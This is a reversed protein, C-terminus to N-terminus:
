LCGPTTKTSHFLVSHHSSETLHREWLSSWAAWASSCAAHLCACAATIISPGNRLLITKPKECSNKSTTPTPESLKQWLTLSIVLMQPAVKALWAQFVQKAHEKCFNQVHNQSNRFMFSLLDRFMYVELASSHSRKTNWLQLQQILNVWNNNKWPKVENRYVVKSM